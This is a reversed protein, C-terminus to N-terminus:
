LRKSHGKPHLTQKELVIVETYRMHYESSYIYNYRRQTCIHLLKIFHTSTAMQVVAGACKANSAEHWRGPLGMRTVAM